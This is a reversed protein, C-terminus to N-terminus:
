GICERGRDEQNITRCEIARGAARGGSRLDARHQNWRWSRRTRPSRQRWRGSEFVFRVLRSGPACACRRGSSRSGGRTARAVGAGGRARESLERIVEQPLSLPLGELQGAAPRCLHARRCDSANVTVARWRRASAAAMPDRRAPRRAPCRMRCNILPSISRGRLPDRYDLRGRQGRTVTLSSSLRRLWRVRLIHSRRQRASAGMRRFRTPLTLIAALCRWSRGRAHRSWRRRCGNLGNQFTKRSM